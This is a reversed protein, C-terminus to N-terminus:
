GKCFARFMQLRWYLLGTAFYNVINWCCCIHLLWNINVMNVGTQWSCGIRRKLPCRVVVVRKRM